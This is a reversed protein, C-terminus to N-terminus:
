PCVGSMIASYGNCGEERERGTLPQGRSGLGPGTQVRAPPRAAPARPAAMGIEARSRERRAPRDDESAAPSLSKPNANRANMTTMSSRAKPVSSRAAIIATPRSVTTAPWRVSGRRSRSSRMSRTPIRGQHRAQHRRQPQVADAVAAVGHELRWRRRRHPLRRPAARDAGIQHADAQPPGPTLSAVNTQPMRARRRAKAAAPNDAVPRTARFDSDTSAAVAAIRKRKARSPPRSRPPRAQRERRCDPGAGGGQCGGRGQLKSRRRRAKPPSGRVSRNPWGRRKPRPSVPRRPPSRTSRFRQWAPTSGTPISRSSFAEHAEKNGVQVALEYERRAEVQPDEAPAAPAAAAAAAADERPVLPVDDGGLSGYVFPEQRNSTTKLVDDRVFGFARRVDLGPTTLHKSWRSPSRATRATATWRRRAPRPPM